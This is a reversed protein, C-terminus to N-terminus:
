NQHQNKYPNTHRISPNDDLIPAALTPTAIAPTTMWSLHPSHHPLQPPWNKSIVHGSEVQPRPKPKDQLLETQLPSLNESPQIRLYNEVTIRPPNLITGDGNVHPAHPTTVHQVPSKEVIM